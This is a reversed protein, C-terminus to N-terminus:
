NVNFLSRCIVECVLLWCFCVLVIALGCRVFGCVVCIVVLLLYRDVRVAFLMRCPLYLLALLLCCVFLCGDVVVLLCCVAFLWCLAVFVVCCCWGCLVFLSGCAIILLWDFM